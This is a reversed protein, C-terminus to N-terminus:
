RYEHHTEFYSQAGLAGGPEMFVGAYRHLVNRKDLLSRLHEPLDQVNLAECLSEESRVSEHPDPNFYIKWVGKRTTPPSQIPRNKQHM